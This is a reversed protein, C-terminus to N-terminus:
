QRQRKWRHQPELRGCSVRLYVDPRITALKADGQM